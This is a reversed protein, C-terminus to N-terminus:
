FAAVLLKPPQGGKDGFGSVPAAAPFNLFFGIAKRAL